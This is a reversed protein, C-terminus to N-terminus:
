VARGGRSTIFPLQTVHKQLFRVRHIAELLKATAFFHKNQHYYTRPFTAGIHQTNQGTFPHEAHRQSTSITQKQTFVLKKDKETM